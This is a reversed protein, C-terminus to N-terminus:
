FSPPETDEEQSEMSVEAKFISEENQFETESDVKEKTTHQYGDEKTFPCSSEEGTVMEFIQASKLRFQAGYVKAVPSAYLFMAYAVKMVSGGKPDTGDDIRKPGSEANGADYLVVSKKFIRGDRTRIEANQKFRAVMMGTDEKDKNLDNIIPVQIGWDKRSPNSKLDNERFAKVYRVAEAKLKVAEKPTIILDVHYTGGAKNFHTDPKVLHPWKAIGKPTVFPQRDSNYTEM